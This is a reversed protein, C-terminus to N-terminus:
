QPECTGQAHAEAALRKLTEEGVIARLRTCAYRALDDTRIPRVALTGDEGASVLWRPAVSPIFRVSTIPNGKEFEGIIRGAATDRLTLAQGLFSVDWTNDASSRTHPENLELAPWSSMAQVLAADGGAISRKRRAAEEQMFEQSINSGGDASYKWGSETGSALDFVRTLRVGSDHGATWHTM